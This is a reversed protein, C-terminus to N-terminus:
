VLRAFLSQTQLLGVELLPGSCSSSASYLGALFAAVLSLVAVGRLGSALLVDFVITQQTMAVIVNSTCLCWFAGIVNHVLVNQYRAQKLM